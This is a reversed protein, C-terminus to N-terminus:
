VRARVTSSCSALWTEAGTIADVVGGAVGQGVGAAAGDRRMAGWASFRGAFRPLRVADLMGNVFVAFSSEPLHPPQPLCGWLAELDEASLHAGLASCAVTLEAKRLSLPAGPVLPRQFGRVDWTAGACFATAQPSVRPAVGACTM